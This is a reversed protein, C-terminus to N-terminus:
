GHAFSDGLLCKVTDLSMQPKGPPETPLPDAQFAPSVTETGPNPLDEPSPFLLRSWYEQRPFEMSLPAQHTVTLPTVFVNSMVSCAHM